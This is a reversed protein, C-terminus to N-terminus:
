SHCHTEAENAMQRRYSRRGGVHTKAHVEGRQSNAVSVERLASIPPKVRPTPLVIDVASARRPVPCVVRPGLAYPQMRVARRHEADLVQDAAHPLVRVLETPRVRGVNDKTAARAPRNMFAAAPVEPASVREVSEVGVMQHPTRVLARPHTPAAGINWRHRLTPRWNTESGGCQAAQKGGRTQCM